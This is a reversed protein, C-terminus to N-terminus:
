IGKNEFEESEFESSQWIPESQNEPPSVVGTFIRRKLSEHLIRSEWSFLASKRRDMLRCAFFLDTANRCKGRQERWVEIRRSIWFQAVGVELM